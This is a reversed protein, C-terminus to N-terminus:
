GALSRVLAGNHHRGRSIYRSVYRVDRFAPMKNPYIEHGLSTGNDFVPAMRVCHATSWLLGWNDHHRDTNGILADFLLTDCWWARWDGSPIRTIAQLAIEGYPRATRSLDSELM